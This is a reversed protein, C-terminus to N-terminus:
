SSLTSSVAQTGQGSLQDAPTAFTAGMLPIATVSPGVSCDLPKSPTLTLEVTQNELILSQIAALPAILSTPPVAAASYLQFQTLADKVGYFVLISDKLSSDFGLTQLNSWKSIKAITAVVIPSGYANFSDGLNPSTSM